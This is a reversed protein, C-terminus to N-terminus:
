NTRDIIYSALSALGRKYPSDPVVSLESIARKVHHMARKRTYALAGSSRVAQLVESLRDISRMQIARRVLDSESKTGYSLTQILPLTIKGETLDNGAKKGMVSSDGAYDLWDDILQFALGFHLGFNRLADTVTDPSRALTAATHAAAQFLLATKCRIIEMYSSEDLQTNGINALQMVEGEAITNTAKSMIDMVDMSDLSVMLQFARSYIFDGVLISTSNNWKAKATLSGRRMDSDDVVDDHLLTASHLFEVLTALRIHEAGEFNCTHAALLVVLPRLRKGGSRVVYNGVERILPVDSSMQDPILANVADFDERVLDFICTLDLIDPHQADM